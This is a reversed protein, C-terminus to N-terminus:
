DVVVATDVAHGARSLATVADTHRESPTLLVDGDFTSVVFVPCGIAALPDVMAAVVGTMGFPIPGAAYLARWPGDVEAGQPAAGAECLISLEQDTRTLSMLASSGLLGQLLPAIDETADFRVIVYEGPLSRLSVAPTPM